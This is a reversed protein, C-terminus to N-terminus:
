EPSFVGSSGNLPLASSIEMAMMSLSAAETGFDVGSIRIWSGTEGIIWTQGDSGDVTIGAQHSM